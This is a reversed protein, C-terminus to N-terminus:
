KANRQSSGSGDRMLVDIVLRSLMQLSSQTPKLRSASPVPCVEYWRSTLGLPMWSSMSLVGAAAFVGRGVPDPLAGPADGIGAVRDLNTQRQLRDAELASGVHLHAIRNQRRMLRTPTETEQGASSGPLHTNWFCAFSANVSMVAAASARPSETRSTRARDPGSGGLSHPIGVVVAVRPTLTFHPSDDVTVRSAVTLGSKLWTSLSANWTSTLWRKGIKKESFRGNKM